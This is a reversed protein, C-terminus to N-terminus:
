YGWPTRDVGKAVLTKGERRRLSLPNDKRAVKVAFTCSLADAHDPSALGRDKMEEKTELRQRDSNKQFKYQPGVLDDSLEQTNHIAGESLWDRMYSWLETRRNAWYDTDMSGGFDVSHIKYGREKLRDIVGSGNGLDICVADPKFEEILEAVKNAVQMNDAHKMTIAPITRADRGRRFIMVTEDDGFRAPDVGLILAAGDDSLVERTQAKEVLSRSIFQNSTHDPFQGLVEVKVTDSDLGYKKILQDYLKKDTGEVTRADINERSWFERQRHFCEFFSGSNQRPNSFVLWFRYPTPETFFGESVSWISPPIGSAEDFILLLGVYNHAGAFADPSEKSWLQGAAYYYGTDVKIQKKLCDSFWPAPRLSMALKEFWHSNIALAHWKGVEAWTKTTLQTESNATTIASSGLHCSMMWLNLWAVVTSKGIGRGSSIAKQFLAPEKGQSVLWLNKEIHKTMELLLKKQWKRPGKFNELPTGKKGWPFVYMVFNYPNDRIAPSWIDAMLKQEDAGSYPGSTRAM